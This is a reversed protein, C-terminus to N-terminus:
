NNTIGAANAFGGAARIMHITKVENEEVVERVDAAMKEASLYLDIGIRIGASMTFLVMPIIIAAEITYVGKLKKGMKVDDGANRCLKRTKM